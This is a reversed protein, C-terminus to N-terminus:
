KFNSFLYFKISNFKQGSIEFSSNNLFINQNNDININIVNKLNIYDPFAYSELTIQSNATNFIYYEELGKWYDSTILTTESNITFTKINTLSIPDINLKTLTKNSIDVSYIFTNSILYLNNNNTFPIGSQEFQNFLSFKNNAYKYLSDADWLYYENDKIFLKSDDGVTIDICDTIQEVNIEDNIKKTINICNYNNNTKKSILFYDNSSNLKMFKNNLFSLNSNHSIFKIQNSESIFAIESGNILFNGDLNVVKNESIDFNNTITEEELNILSLKKFSSNMARYINNSKDYLYYYYNGDDITDTIIHLMSRFSKNKNLTLYVKKNSYDNPKINDIYGYIDSTLDKYEISYTSDLNLNVELPAMTRITKEEVKGTNLDKFSLVGEDDNNSYSKLILNFKDGAESCSTLLLTLIIFIIALNSIYENRHRTSAL